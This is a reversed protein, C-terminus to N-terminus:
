DKSDTANQVGKQKDRWWDEIIEACARRDPICVGYGAGSGETRLLKCIAAVLEANTRAGEKKGTPHLHYPILRLIEVSLQLGNQRGPKAVDARVCAEIAELASSKQYLQAEADYLRKINSEDNSLETKLREIEKRAEDLQNRLTDISEQMAAQINRGGQQVGKWDAQAIELEKRLGEAISRESQLAKIIVEEAKGMLCQEGCGSDGGTDSWEINDNLEAILDAAIEEVPRQQSM